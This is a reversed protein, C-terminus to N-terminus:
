GVRCLWGRAAENAARRRDGRFRRGSAVTDLVSKWPFVADSKFVFGVVPTLGTVPRGDGRVTGKSPRELGSVLTLTTSKGCGTPGVVACFEGPGVQLDLDKLATYVSGSPTTFRKTVGQLDIAPVETRDAPRRENPQM